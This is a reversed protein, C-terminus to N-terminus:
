SIQFSSIRASILKGLKLFDLLNGKGQPSRSLLEYVGNNQIYHEISATFIDEKDAFESYISSKNVGTCKEIDALTTEALGKEWFLQITANLLEDRDYIKPRGM